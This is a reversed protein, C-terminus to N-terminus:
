VGNSITQFDIADICAGALGYRVRSSLVKLIVADEVWHHQINENLDGDAVSAMLTYEGAPLAPMRLSFSAILEDGPAAPHISDPNEAFLTNEGFLDQGLRDKVIFGLIPKSITKNALAHVIIKVQEGGCFINSPLGSTDQEIRVGVLDADGTKWGKAESLNDEWQCTTSYDICGHTKRSWDQPNDVAALTNADEDVNNKGLAYLKVEEGYSTAQCFRLYDLVVEKCNGTGLAQGRSLWLAHSCLSKVAESDHSVFLLCREERMKRIFRMCRQVFVADGVALAEDVVLIDANVHAIVAFALRVAMGSSYAKVPQRIFDGIDAFSLIDDLRADTEQKSLGLMSANLYVNEIGTFEPNFGSGLELLAAIRGNTQISGETPTLTGCILQLLTSKGSGNRGIIGLSEGRKVEFDVNRLAWFESFYQRRGRWLAQKLRANPNDYIRYCKGLDHCQIVPDLNNAMAAESFM